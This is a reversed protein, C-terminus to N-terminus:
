RGRAVRKGIVEAVRGDEEEEDTAEGGVSAGDLRESVSATADIGGICPARMREAAEDAIVVEFGGVVEDANGDRWRGQWRRVVGWRSPEGIVLEADGEIGGGLWGPTMAAPGARSPEEHHDAAEPTVSLESRMSTM